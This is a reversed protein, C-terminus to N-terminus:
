FIEKLDLIANVEATIGLKINVSADPTLSVPHQNEGLKAEFTIYKVTELRAFDEHNITLLPQSTVSPALATGTQEDIRDPYNITIHLSSQVPTQTSDLM